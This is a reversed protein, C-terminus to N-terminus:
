IENSDMEINSRNYTVKIDSKGCGNKSIPGIGEVFDTQNIAVNFAIHEMIDYEDGYEDIIANYGEILSNIRDDPIEIEVFQRIEVEVKM